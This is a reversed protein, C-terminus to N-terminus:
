DHLESRTNLIALFQSALHFATFGCKPRRLQFIEIQNAIAVSMSFHWDVLRFRSILSNRYTHRFLTQLRELRQVRHVEVMENESKVLEFVGALPLPEASFESTVPVAFKTERNFIPRYTEDMGLEILSEQWLKQQPYSPIIMPTNDHALSVAIVDDSLLQYGTKLLVSALTSKGAGSDGIFGYAKGNVALASGHLPLIKRQILVAGMCTGLIFLTVKDHDFDKLPSVIIKNGNQVCFRAIDSIQFIYLDNSVMSKKGDPVLASWLESLDAIEITVDASDLCTELEPLERLLIPSKIALGFARYVAFNTNDAM